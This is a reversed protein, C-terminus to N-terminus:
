WKKARRRSIEEKLERESNEIAEHTDKMCDECEETPKKPYQHNHPCDKTFARYGGCPVLNGDERNSMSEGLQKAEKRAHFFAFTPVLESRQKTELGEKIHKNYSDDFSWEDFSLLELGSQVISNIYSSITRHYYTFPGVSDAIFLEKTFSEGVKRSIQYEDPTAEGTQYSLPHMIAIIIRGGHKTVRALESLVEVLPDVYIISLSSVVIDFSQDQFPLKMMNSAVHLKNSSSCTLDCEFTTARISKALWGDGAGVDLVKCNQHDGVLRLINPKLGRYRLYQSPSPANVFDIYNQLLSSWAIKLNNRRKNSYKPYEVIEESKGDV